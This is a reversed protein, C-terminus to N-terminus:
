IKCAGNAGVEEKFYYLYLDEFGPSVVSANFIPKEEALIKVEVGSGKRLINGITYKEKLSELATEPIEARWVKGELEMLLDEPKEKKILVGEKLLLVEKAVYEIDTVIHTSLIVTKDKSIESILNRFRIREKPDLGSTPEDLILIKPDNLIAQAIGLRQKMGGSFTGIKRKKDEGLNVIELVEEIKKHAYEKELGKLSAMYMLFKEATFYKYMGFQQPLYGLIDRYREDMVRIDEGNVLVRGKTPMLIDAIIRILTTKGSGNPGLLGYVGRTLETNFNNVAVKDKFIKTIGEITLNM